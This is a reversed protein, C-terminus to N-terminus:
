LCSEKKVARSDLEEHELALRFKGEELFGERVGERAPALHGRQAEKDRGSRSWTTWPYTQKGWQVILGMIAPSLM